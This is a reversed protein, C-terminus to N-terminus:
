SAAGEKSADLADILSGPYMRREGLWAAVRACGQQTILRADPDYGGAFHWLGGDREDVLDATGHLQDIRIHYSTTLDMSSEM